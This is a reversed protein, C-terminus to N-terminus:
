RQVYRMAGRASKATLAIPLRNLPLELFMAIEAAIVPHAVDQYWRRDVETPKCRWYSRVDWFGGPARVLQVDVIPFPQALQVWSRPRLQDALTTVTSRKGRKPLARGRTKPAPEPGSGTRKRWALLARIAEALEATLMGRALMRELPWTPVTAIDRGAYTGTGPLKM